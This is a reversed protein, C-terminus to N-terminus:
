DATERQLFRILAARTEDNNITQEPMKTGPTYTSPGVEFLESVTEPTWVIDMDRLAQSYRYGPVSAIRRGFIGHLTPGARNGDEPDLTHCAVCARFAEAGPDGAFEALPDTEGAAVTGIPEGTEVNWQRVVRDAGGTLLTEGDPTFALSWVPMGPSNLEHVPALNATDLLVIADRVGAAALHEGNPSAALAVVPARAVRAESLLTGDRDLVRVTGDAGGLAVRDGPLTALTNLPTSMTVRVPAASADQPWFILNADYGASVPTGDALFTVANVNGAHGDLLRADGGALPWLRVTTDWSASALISGDPSVALATVPATHGELVRAPADRGPEWIAVRSDAGATAFRGDPLVAVANVEDGHFLLVRRAEGTELSWVIARTDFSGTIAATGEPAVAIARVPGGHGRLEMGDAATSLLLLAAALFRPARRMHMAYRIM